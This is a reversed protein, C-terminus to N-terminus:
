VAATEDKEALLELVNDKLLPKIVPWSELSNDYVISLGGLFGGVAAFLAAAATPWHWPTGVIWFAVLICAIAIVTIWTKIRRFKGLHADEDKFLSTLEAAVKARRKASEM